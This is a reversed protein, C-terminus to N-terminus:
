CAAPWSLSCYGCSGVLTVARRRRRRRRWGRSSRARNPTALTLRRNPRPPAVPLAVSALRPLPQTQQQRLVRQQLATRTEGLSPRGAPDKTLLTAIVDSLEGSHALVPAPDHMVAHLTPLSGSREFPSRGDIAAYLTAGLSWLDSALTAPEGRAREPSMYAPSGLLLGTTTVTADGELTAIGFDTLVARGTSRLLMVNAPKVDRHLVGV